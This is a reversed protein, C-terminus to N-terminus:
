SARNARRRARFEEVDILEGADQADLEQARVLAARYDGDAHLAATAFLSETLHRLPGYDRTVECRRSTVVFNALISQHTELPLTALAAMMLEFESAHTHEPRLHSPLVQQEVPSM